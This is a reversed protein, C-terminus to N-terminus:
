REVRLGAEHAVQCAYQRPQQMHPQQRWRQRVNHAGPPAHLQLRPQPQTRSLGPKCCCVPLLLLPPLLCRSTRVHGSRRPLLALLRRPLSRRLHWRCRRLHLRLLPRNSSSAVPQPM